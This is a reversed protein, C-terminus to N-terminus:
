EFSIIFRGTKVILPIKPTRDEVTKYKYYKGGRQYHKKHQQYYSIKKKASTHEEM